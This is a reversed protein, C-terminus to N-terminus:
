TRAFLLVSFALVAGMSVFTTAAGSLIPLAANQVPAVYASSPQTSPTYGNVAAQQQPSTVYSPLINYRQYERQAADRMELQRDMEDRTQQILVTIQNIMNINITTQGSPAGPDNTPQVSGSVSSTSSATVSLSSISGTTATSSGSVTSNLSSVGKLLALQSNLDAIKANAAALANSYDIAAKDATAKAAARKAALDAISADTPLVCTLTVNKDNDAADIVYGTAPANFMNKSSSVIWSQQFSAVDTAVTPDFLQGAQSSVLRGSPTTANVKNCLGAQSLYGNALVLTVDIVQASQRANISLTGAADPFTTLISVQNAVTSAVPVSAILPKSNIAVWQAAPDTATKYRADFVQVSNGVRLAVAQITFSTTAPTAGGPNGILVQVEVHPSKFLYYTGAASFKPTLATGSNLTSITTATDGSAVNTSCTGGVSLTRTLPLTTATDPFATGDVDIKISVPVTENLVTSARFSAPVLNYKVDIWQSSNAPVTVYCPNFGVVTSQFYATMNSVSSNIPRFSFTPQTDTDSFGQAPRFELLSVADAFVPTLLLLSLM